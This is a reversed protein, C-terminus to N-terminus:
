QQAGSTSAPTKPDQVPQVPQAGAGAGVPAQAQAKPKPKPKNPEDDDEIIIPNDASSGRTKYRYARYGGYGGAATLAILGLIIAAKELKPSIELGGGINELTNDSLEKQKAMSELKNMEEETLSINHDELKKMQEKTLAM